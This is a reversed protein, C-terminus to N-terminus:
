SFQHLYTWYDHNIPSIDISLPIIVWKYIYSPPAGGPPKRTYMFCSSLTSLGWWTCSARESRDYLLAFADAFVAMKHQMICIALLLRVYTLFGGHKAPVSIYMHYIISIYASVHQYINTENLHELIFWDFSCLQYHNELVLDTLSHELTYGRGRQDQIGQKSTRVWCQALENKPGGLFLDWAHWTKAPSEANEAMSGWRLKWVFIWCVM